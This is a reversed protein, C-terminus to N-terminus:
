ELKKLGLDEANVISPSAKPVDDVPGDVFPLVDMDTWVPHGSM